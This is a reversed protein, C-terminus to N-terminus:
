LLRSADSEDWIEDEDGEMARMQTSREVVEGLAAESDYVICGWM